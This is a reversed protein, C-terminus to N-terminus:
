GLGLNTLTAQDTVQRRLEAVILTLPVGQNFGGDWRGDPAWAPKGESGAHHLAVPTFDQNMVPSGSNGCETNVGYRVRIKHTTLEAASPLSLTLKLAGAEKDSELQPHGLVFLAENVDFDHPETPLRFWGREEEGVGDLGLGQSGVPEKLRLLAFDLLLPDTVEVGPESLETSVTGHWSQAELPNDALAM